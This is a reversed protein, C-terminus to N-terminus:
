APPFPGALFVEGAAVNEPVVVDFQRGDVLEVRLARGEGLQEPCAFHVYEDAGEGTAGVAAEADGGAAQSAAADEAAGAGKEEAEQRPAAETTMGTGASSGPPFLTAFRAVKKRGIEEEGRNVLKVFNRKNEIKGWLESDMGWEALVEHQPITM